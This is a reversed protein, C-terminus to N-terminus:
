VVEKSVIHKLKERAIYSCEYGKAADELQMKKILLLVLKKKQKRSWVFM